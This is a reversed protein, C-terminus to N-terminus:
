YKVVPKVKRGFRSVYLNDNKVDVKDTVTDDLRFESGLIKMQDVHVSKFKKKCPFCSKIKFHLDDLQRVLKYPGTFQDQLKPSLNKNYMHRKLMCYRGAAFDKVNVNKNFKDSYEKQASVINYKAIDRVKNKDVIESPSLFFEFPLMPKKGYVIEYPSFKTSFNVNTNIAYTVMPLCVDWANRDEVSYKSLMIEIIRNMSEVLGQSQHQYPTIYIPQCNSVALLHQILASKNISANDFQIFRPTGFRLIIERIIFNALSLANANKVAQTVVYKSLTDVGVIIYRNEDNSRHLPGIVDIIWKDFVTGVESPRLYAPRGINSPNRKNCIM